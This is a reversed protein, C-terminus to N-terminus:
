PLPIRFGGTMSMFDDPDYKKRVERVHELNGQYIHEVPTDELATNMYIAADNTTVGEELAVKRIEELASKMREIWFGDEKEDEWLFYTLCPGFVKGPAHPWAAGEPSKDFIGPLFPWM